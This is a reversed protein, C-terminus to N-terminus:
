ISKYAHKLFAFFHVKNNTKKLTSLFNRVDKERSVPTIVDIQMPDSLMWSGDHYVYPLSACPNVNTRLDDIRITTYPGPNEAEWKQKRTLVPIDFTSKVEDVFAECILRRKDSDYNFTVEGYHVGKEDYTFFEDFDSVKALFTQPEDPDVLSYYLGGLEEYGIQLQKNYPYHIIFGTSTYYLDATNM